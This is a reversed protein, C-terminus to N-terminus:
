GRDLRAELVQDDPRDARREQQVARGQDVAGGPLELEVADGRRHAPAVVAVDISSVPMAITITPRPNLDLAAGNWM